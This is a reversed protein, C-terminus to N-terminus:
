QRAVGISCVIKIEDKETTGIVLREEDHLQKVLDALDQDSYKARRAQRLRINAYETLPRDNMAALADSADAGFITGGLREVAWKRAGKLNGATVIESTLKEKVLKAERAFHDERLPVAPTSEQARFIRLAELPTLLREVPDGDRNDFSAAFADIGSTTSAFTTIGSKIEHDYPDRTSHLMDQMKLVRVALEPKHEKVSSWVLWAESVADAEGEDQELEEEGPVVGKYLDDLLNVEKDDGFFREDSGFAAANDGLRRRIRQRLQIADEIKKHSILYINVTDSKQGVRDVRGARQIIRIIAWPLDYNVVVHSDQLNQGESLVDTAILVDIPDDVPTTDEEDGPLKNSEPSFRRALASPDASAGSALGVNAIGATRLAEAVYVATDAYETFVLVKDGKHKGRLLDVLADIKSDKAPDWTGFSDLLDTIIRNDRELDNRLAKKLVHTGLWKTSAPLRRNLEKYQSELSGYGDQDEEVDEDTVMFQHDSFSGLPVDLGNDIAYIFLENRARQRRLSLIFSHGSSSLRKFLGIRVFGSVNGRGARIDALIKTDSESHPAKPDDYDALRYRPLTLDRVADLTTEDEMLRAPDDDAFEHWLPSPVRTPFHFRTGNAFELYEREVVNGDPLTVTEKKATRKIFSRTRRVLHDSMLRKWDEPEESRRFAALTTIKGDVKDILTPDEAMAATPQIGLDDDDEIYLGIQNAVDAFALNYPTATLLLVKSGNRRVYDKIAESARTTNNRLNHSEDCIVLHFRKLEPLKKDAMSYPIVRAGVLGYKELHEEWMRELNKPCLVLTTYDEAAELMLATAIATLTKGLGVVDGLMTGGRRVIRRALTRVATTQYDLLLNEISPPLVYGMGERADESLAHCVKLYVEYPSPQTESAWSEEILEIIEKTIQLSFVDDWRDTFWKSLKETADNDTVDINLELNKYFGANTMNSSGVYARRQAFANGPAHFIYTKGHLPAATFVKMEVAGSALQAKLQQLTRQEAESPLGRMLQTRLHKVLSDKAAHAKPMDSIDSGYPPPQVVDQLASLMAASDAAMVMGVLVRVAAPDGEQRSESKADVIDAFSAWGRLDLYGTAIDCSDFATLAGQLAPGIASETELNDFIDPM